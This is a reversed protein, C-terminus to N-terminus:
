ATRPLCTQEEAQEGSMCPSSNHLWLLEFVCVVPIDPKPGFHTLNAGFLVFRPSKLMEPVNKLM